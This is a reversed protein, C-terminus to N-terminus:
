MLLEIAAGLAGVLDFSALFISYLWKVGGPILNAIQLTKSKLLESFSLLYYFNITKCIMNYYGIAFHVSARTGSGSGGSGGNGGNDSGTLYHIHRDFLQTGTTASLRTNNISSPNAVPHVFIIYKCIGPQRKSFVAERVKGCGL